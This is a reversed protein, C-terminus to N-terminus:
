DKKFRMSIVNALVTAILSLGLSMLFLVFANPRKRSVFDGGAEFIYSFAIM